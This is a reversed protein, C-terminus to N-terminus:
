LQLESVMLFSFWFASSFLCPQSIKAVQLIKCHQLNEYGIFNGESNLNGASNFTGANQSKVKKNGKQNEEWKTGTITLQKQENQYITNNQATYLGLCVSYGPSRKKRM